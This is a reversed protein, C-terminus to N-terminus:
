DSLILRNDPATPPQANCVAIHEM